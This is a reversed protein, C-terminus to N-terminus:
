PGRTFNCLYPRDSWIVIGALRADFKQALLRDWHGLFNKSLSLEKTIEPIISGQGSHWGSSDLRSSFKDPAYLPSSQLSEWPSQPQIQRTYPPSSQLSVWPSQPQIQRTYLPYSIYPIPAPQPPSPPLPPHWKFELLGVRFPPSNDWRSGFKPQYIYIYIYMYIYIYTYRERYIHNYIPVYVHICVDREREREIYIYIYIRTHM